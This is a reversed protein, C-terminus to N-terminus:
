EKYKRLFADRGGASTQGPLTGDTYGDVYVGTSDVDIDYGYDEKATGFQSTWLHGGALSYKLVFVDDEGRHTHGPLAGETWGTLYVGTSNVAIDYPIDEKTSGFQRTWILSGTLSYKRVFGDDLGKNTQGPLAGKTYGDVYVGTSNVALSQGWDEQPTGFQRTWVVGGKSNYRRVFADKGGASTKGPLAGGVTGAVYVGTSSAVVDLAYDGSSSGFQHTWLESGTFSYKRVFADDWGKNSQAPLTGATHGGVYIGTSDLAVDWAIDLNSSGFQRTWVHGGNLNYKRLFVDVNGRSTQGPLAGGTQGAVYIGTSNVAISHAKDSGTSGFQRTWVLGGTSNYKRIFADDLGKNAQGPLTGATYGAVYVGTSHVDVDTADDSAPTGFQRTWIVSGAHATTVPLLAQLAIACLLLLQVVTPVGRTRRGSSTATVVAQLVLPRSIRRVDQHRTNDHRTM